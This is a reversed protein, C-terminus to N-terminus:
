QCIDFTILNHTSPMLFRFNLIARLAHGFADVVPRDRLAVTRTVM